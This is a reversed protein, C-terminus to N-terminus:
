GGSRIHQRYHQLAQERSTKLDLLPEPYDTGIL